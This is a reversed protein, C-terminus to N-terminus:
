EGKMASVLGNIMDKLQELNIGEETSAMNRSDINKDAVQTGTVCAAHAAAMPNRVFSAPSQADCGCSNCGTSYSIPTAPIASCTENRMSELATNNRYFTADDSVMTTVNKIGYCVTKKNILHLPTVNESVSSGGMTGCGLTFAPALGTSLGTGGMSGGTNVLIRSAPKVAFERVIKEDQTHLNMTHGIGNQLLKMSLECAEHWDRVVYFGLVCTLKEYSLLNDEGVGTQLGILVTTNDPVCIGAGDAIVKASRGVYKANMTHGNKFLIKCVKRLEDPNLFYAGQAKLEAVVADHNCEEVIISQESACITGNDFTKSAIINSVAKKM